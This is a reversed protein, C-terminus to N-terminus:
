TSSEDDFLDREDARTTLDELFRTGRRVFELPTLLLQEFKNKSLRLHSERRFSIRFAPCYVRNLIYIPKKLRDDFAVELKTDDLVGFRVLYHLVDTASRSLEMSDNREIALREDYRVRGRIQRRSHRLYYNCVRGLATTFQYIHRGVSVEEGGISVTGPIYGLAELKRESVLKIANHQVAPPIHQPQSDPGVNAAAFVESVLELLSRPTRDALQWVVEWGAYYANKRGEALLAVLDDTSHVQDALYDVISSSRFHWHRLRRAVIREFYRKLKEREPDIGTPLFLTRSIDFSSFDHSEELARGSSDELLYSFREASIKVCYVPNTSRVIDNIVRQAHAPVNPEGADDFLIYFHTVALPPFTDRVIVCFTRLQSETLYEAASKTSVGGKFLADIERSENRVLAAYLNRLPSALTSDFPGLAGDLVYSGVFRYLPEYSSAEPLRKHEVAELLTALIRRFIKLILIHKVWLVTTASFTLLESSFQKFEGQRCPFFVGFVESMPVVNDAVSPFSALAALYTSKGSGRAGYIVANGFARMREFLEPYPEFLDVAIAPNTIEEYRLLGLAQPAEFKERLFQERREKFRQYEPNRDLLQLVESFPLAKKSLIFRVLEYLQAGLHKRISMRPLHGQLVTLIRWLHEQFYQFDTRGYDYESPQGIGYSVDIVRFDVGGRENQTVLINESHLDGHYAEEAELAALATSVQKIFAEVFYPSLPPTTSLYGELTKGDIFPFLLCHLTVAEGSVSKYPITFYDLPHVLYPEGGIQGLKGLASQLNEVAGPRIVKVVSPRSLTTHTAKFAVSNKGVSIVSQLKYKGALALEERLMAPLDILVRGLFALGVPKLREEQGDMELYGSAALAAKLATPMRHVKGTSWDIRVERLLPSPNQDSVLRILDELDKVLKNPARLARSSM